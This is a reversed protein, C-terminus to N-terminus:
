LFIKSGVIYYIFKKNKFRNLFKYFKINTFFM